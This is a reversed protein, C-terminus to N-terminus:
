LIPWDTIIFMLLPIKHQVNLLTMTRAVCYYMIPLYCQKIDCLFLWLTSLLNLCDRIFVDFLARQTSCVSFKKICGKNETADTDTKPNHNKKRREKTPEGWGGRIMWCARKNCTCSTCGNSLHFSKSHSTENSCSANIRIDQLKFLLWFTNTGHWFGAAQVYIYLFEKWECKQVPDRVSMSYIFLM